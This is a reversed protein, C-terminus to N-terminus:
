QTVEELLGSVLAIIARADEESIGLYPRAPIAPHGQSVDGGFQHIAAYEDPANVIADSGSSMNSIGEALQGEGVLLSRAPKGAIMQAYAESWAAWPTGDPATKGEMLRLKTQDEMLAGVQDVIAHLDAESLAALKRQADAFDLTTEMAVGTM